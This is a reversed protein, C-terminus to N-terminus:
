FILKICTINKNQKNLTHEESFTQPNIVFERTNNTTSLCCFLRGRRFLFDRGEDNYKQKSSGSKINVFLLIFLFFFLGYIFDPLNKHISMTTAITSQEM